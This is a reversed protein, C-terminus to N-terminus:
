SKGNNKLEQLKRYIEKSREIQDKIKEPSLGVQEEKDWPLAWLKMPSLNTGKKINPLLQLYTSYREREWSDKLDVEHGRVIADIEKRTCLFLDNFPIKTRGVIVM